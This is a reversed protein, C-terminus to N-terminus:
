RVEQGNGPFLIHGFGGIHQMHRLRCERALNGIEFVFEALLEERARAAAGDQGLVAHVKPLARLFNEREAEDIERQHNLREWKFIIM